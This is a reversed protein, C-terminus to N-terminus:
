RRDGAGIPTTILSKVFGVVEHFPLQEQELRFHEGFDGEKLQAYLAQEADTLYPLEPARKDTRYIVALERYKRLRNEDMLFSKTQPFYSRLQSLIAFGDTDIDGWYYIKKQRLWAIDRLKTVGYGGGFIAIAKRVEPFSLFSMLNEIIFVTDCDFDVGQLAGTTLSVDELRHYRDFVRLRVLPLPYKLGYRKEFRYEGLGKLPDRQKLHSLLMDIIKKHKEIFKTDVGELSIERIYIDPKEHKLFFDVIKFLREWKGAYEVIWFPKQLFLSKLAPYRGTVLDYNDVFTRYAERKNVIQFFTEKDKIVVEVPLKQKGLTKYHFEEYRLEFPFKQLREVSKQVEHFSNQIDREKVRKLRFRLPFLDEHLMYSQFLTGDTYVKEIKKLLKETEFIM